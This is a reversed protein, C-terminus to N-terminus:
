NPLGTPRCSTPLGRASATSSCDAIRKSCNSDRGAEAPRDSAPCRAASLKFLIRHRQLVPHRRKTVDGRYRLSAHEGAVAPDNMVRRGPSQQFSAPRALGPEGADTFKFSAVALYHSAAAPCLQEEQVLRDRKRRTVAGAEEATTFGRFGKALNPREASRDLHRPRRFHVRDQVSLPEVVSALPQV